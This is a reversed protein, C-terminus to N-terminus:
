WVPAPGRPDVDPLARAAFGRPPLAPVPDPATTPACQEALEATAARRRARADALATRTATTDVGEGRQFGLRHLLADEDRLAEALAPPGAADLIRLARDRIDILKAIGRALPNGRRMKSRVQRSAHRYTRTTLLLSEPTALPLNM